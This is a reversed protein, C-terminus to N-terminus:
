LFINVTQVRLKYLPYISAFDFHHCKGPGM